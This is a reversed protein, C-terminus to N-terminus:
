VYQVHVVHVNNPLPRLLLLMQHLFQNIEGVSYMCTDIIPEQQMYMIGM